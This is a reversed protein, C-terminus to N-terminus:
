QATPEDGFDDPNTKDEPPLRGLAREVMAHHEKEEQLLETFLDKVKADKVQGLARAYFDRARIESALAIRMAAHPTMAARVEDYGATEVEPVVSRDVKSPAGGCAKQRHARLQEGHKTENIVMGKFFKAPEPSRHVELQEALEQYRDRAEDEIIIAIDLADQLTLKAFDLTKSM